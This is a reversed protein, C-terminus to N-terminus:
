KHGIKKIKSIFGSKKTKTTKAVSKTQTSKPSSPSANPDKGQAKLKEKRAAERERRKAEAEDKKKRVAPTDAANDYRYEVTDQTQVNGAIDKYSARRATSLLNAATQNRYKHHLFYMCTYITREYGVINSPNRVKPDKRMIVREYKKKLWTCFLNREEFVKAYTYYFSPSNSFVRFPLRSISLRSKEDIGTCDLEVVVDYYINMKTRSPLKCHFILTNDTRFMSSVIPSPYDERLEREVTDRIMTTPAVNSGRGYPNALYEGLTM